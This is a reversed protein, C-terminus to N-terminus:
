FHKTTPKEFHLAHIGHPKLNCTLMPSKIINHQKNSINLSTPFCLSISSTHFTLSIRVLSDKVAQFHVYHIISKELENFKNGVQNLQILSLSSPHPKKVWCQGKKFAYAFTICYSSLIKFPKLLFEPKWILNPIIIPCPYTFTKYLKYSIFCAVPICFM